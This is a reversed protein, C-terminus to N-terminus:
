KIKECIEDVIGTNIGLFVSYVLYEEWIALQEKSKEEIRSFDVLYKRLGELKLNINKAEETRIYPDLTNLMKYREIYIKAIFPMFILLVFIAFVLMLGLIMINSNSEVNNIFITPTTFFGIIAMIYIVIIQTIKIKVRKEVGSKEEILGNKLADRRVLSAYEILNVTSLTKEKVKDLIYKENEELEKENDSILIIDEKEIKIKKKLELMLLTAIVDKKEINFDDVYSLVAPSYQPLIERYYTNNRFDVKELRENRHKKNAIKVGFYIVTIYFIRIMSMIVAVIVLFMIGLGFNLYESITIDNLNTNQLELVDFNLGGKYLEIISMIVIILWYAIDIILSPKIRKKMNKGRIIFM